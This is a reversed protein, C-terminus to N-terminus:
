KHLSIIVKGQIECNKVVIDKFDPNEPKLIIKDKEKYYRKITAENDVRAVVVEGNVATNCIEAFVLDGDFIGAGIMSNGKAYLSMLPKNGFISTPLNFNEEINQEAFMLEGCAATGVLPAVITDSRKLNYPIAIEGSETKEVMGRSELVKVYQQISGISKIKLANTIQRYSPSSGFEKQYDKVFEFTKQINAENIKKMIAEEKILYVGRININSNYFM